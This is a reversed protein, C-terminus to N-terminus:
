NAIEEGCQEAYKVYFADFADVWGGYGEGSMAAADTAEALTLLDDREDGSVRAALEQTADIADRTAVAESPDAIVGSVAEIAAISADTFHDNPGGAAFFDCIVSPIPTTSAEPESPEPTIETFTSEVVSGCATLILLVCLIASARLFIV